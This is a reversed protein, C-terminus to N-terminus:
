QLAEVITTVNFRVMELYTAGPTGPQGLADTYLTPAFIVGAEDAIQQLLDPNTINEAFVAPVGEARIQDILAAIDSASPEASETSFSAIASAIAFGYEAGFYGFTDHSTILIRNAEPITAVQERIFADLETLQATYAESSTDYAAANAPDAEVLAARINEVMIIANNPDHWVHPDFEGHEHAEGEVTEDEHDHAEEPVLGFATLRTPKGGVVFREEGVMMTELDISTIDGRLPDTMYATHDVVIFGPRPARRQEFTFPDVVAVSGEIEGTAVDVRHLSGDITYVILDAPDHPLLATTWIAAPVEFTEVVESDLTFRVVGFDGFDGVIFPAGDMTELGYTRAGDPNETPYAIKRSTFDAGATDRELVLIGDGCAFLVTDDGIALEGHLEPCEAFTQLNTGEYDVVEVGLPLNDTGIDPTSVVIVDSLAVAVGHHGEATQLTTIPESADTLSAETFIQVEGTEDYFVAIRDDHMVFHTPADGEVSFNLLAPDDMESHFHDEHRSLYIGSDIANVMDGSRQVAFAYRGNPSTYLSASATLEYTVLVEGTEIDLVHVIGREADNVALRAPTLPTDATIEEHDHGEFALPDVGDSVVVRQATSGSATYLDDLWTEFELGNEFIIDAEALTIADQPTPEYVHSDGDPGVLVTLEVNDGAVNQVLDGLISYTAVVRIPEDQAALPTVAILMFLAVVFLYRLMRM